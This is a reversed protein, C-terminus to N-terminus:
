QSSDSPVFQRKERQQRAEAGSRRKKYEALRRQEEVERVEIQQRREGESEEPFRHRQLLRVEDPGGDHGRKIRGADPIATELQRLRRLREPPQESNAPPARQGGALTAPGLELSIRIFNTM